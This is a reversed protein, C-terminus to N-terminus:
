VNKLWSCIIITLSRLELAFILGNIGGSPNSDIRSFFLDVRFTSCVCLADNFQM